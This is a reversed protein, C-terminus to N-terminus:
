AAPVAEVQIAGWPICDNRRDLSSLAVSSPISGHNGPTRFYWGNLLQGPRATVNSPQPKCAFSRTDQAIGPAIQQHAMFLIQGPTVLPSALAMDVGVEQLSTTNAVGDKINGSDWVKEINGNAPNFICLAMYYADVGFLSTDNGVKWRMRKANGRRDVIIPTYDVPAVSQFTVRAPKYKAPVLDISVNINPTANSTSGTVNGTSTSASLSGSGHSHGGGSSSVVYTTLDDRSCSAMDDIDAVYAPTVPTAPAVSELDAIAEEIDALQGGLNDFFDALDGLGGTLLGTIASVINTVASTVAAPVNLFGGLLNNLLQDRVQELEDRMDQNQQQGLADPDVDQLQYITSATYGRQPVIPPSGPSTM